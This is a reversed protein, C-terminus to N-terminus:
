PSEPMNGSGLGPAIVRNPGTGFIGLIPSIQSPLIVSTQGQGLISKNYIM